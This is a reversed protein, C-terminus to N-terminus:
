IGTDKYNVNCSKWSYAPTEKHHECYFIQTENLGQVPSTVDIGKKVGQTDEWFIECFTSKTITPLSICSFPLQPNIKIYDKVLSSSSSADLNSLIKPIHIVIQRDIINKEQNYEVSLVFMDKDVTEWGTGYFTFNNPNEVNQKEVTLNSPILSSILIDSILSKVNIKIYEPILTPTPIISSQKKLPINQTQVTQRPLWGLQNPFVDSVPLINFYNFIGFLLFLIIAVFFFEFLGIELFALTQLRNKKPFSEDTEM